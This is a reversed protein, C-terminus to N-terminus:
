LKPATNIIQNIVDTLLRLDSESSLRHDSNKRLILKKHDGTIKAFVRASTEFPVDKDLQGHILFTPIKIALPKTSNLLLYKRGSDILKKSIPYTGDCEESPLNYIEGNNIQEKINDSFDNWLLEETFDPAAALTILSHIKKPRRLTTLLALWGGLSSGVLIVPNIALNDIVSLCNELWDEIGFEVFKGDSNGHGLYDFRVSGLGHEKAYNEVHMAKTGMRDSMLGPLFVIDFKNGLIQDYAINGDQVRHFDM